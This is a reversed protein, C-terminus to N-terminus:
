ENIKKEGDLCFSHNGDIRDIVFHVINSVRHLVIAIFVWMFIFPLLNNIYLYLISSCFLGVWVSLCYPCDLARHLFGFLKHEKKNFLFERLPNFLESKSVINTIAEILVVTVIVALILYM